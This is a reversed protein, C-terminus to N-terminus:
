VRQDRARRRGIAVDVAVEVAVGLGAVAAVAEEAIRELRPRDVLRPRAGGAVEDTLLVDVLEVDPVAHRARLDAGGEVIGRVPRAAHLGAAGRRRGAAVAEAAAL